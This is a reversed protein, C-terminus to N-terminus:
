KKNRYKKRLLFNYGIYANFSGFINNAKFRSTHYNNTRLIANLGAYWRTNNYVLAFRGIGDINVKGFSFGDKEGATNGYSTKYALAAQGSACFILNKVLVWTYAYGASLSFDNYEVRDFMLGSDLKAQQGESVQQEVIRQLKAFDFDITNNTFGAGALWSGCSIKQCVGPSFAAPYSFHHHNFIYYANVGTIGVTIGDFPINEFQSGDIGYGMRVERLKYDSGTRRYFLDVGVQSSYISFDIERKAGNGFLSINKLDFTTGLFLWRWGFYPGVKIRQDPSLMVSQGNSNLIFDEYNRTARMEVAFEYHPPEIYEDEFRDFERVVERVTSMMNQNRKVLSDSEEEIQGDIAVGAESRDVVCGAMAKETAMVLMLLLMVGM